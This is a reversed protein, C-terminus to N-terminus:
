SWRFIINEYRNKDSKVLAKRYVAKLKDLEILFDIQQSIDM